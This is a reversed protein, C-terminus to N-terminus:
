THAHGKVPTLEAEQKIIKYTNDNFVTVSAGTDIDMELEKGNVNVNVTYPDTKNAGVAYIFYLEDESSSAAEVYNTKKNFSGKKAFDKIDSDQKNRCTKAIHGKKKCLHCKADKFKCEHESHIVIM